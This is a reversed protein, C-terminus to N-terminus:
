MELCVSFRSSFGKVHQNQHIRFSSIHCVRSIYLLSDLANYNYNTTTTMRLLTLHLFDIYSYAQTIHTGSLTGNYWQVM